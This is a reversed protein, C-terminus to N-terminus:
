AQEQKDKFAKLLNDMYDPESSASDEWEKRSAAIANEGHKAHAAALDFGCDAVKRKPLFGRDKDSIHLGRGIQRHIADDADWAYHDDGDRISRVATKCKGCLSKMQEKNPNQFVSVPPRYEFLEVQHIKGEELIFDKFGIVM